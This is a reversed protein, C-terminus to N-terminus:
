KGNGLGQTITTVDFFELTVKNLNGTAVESYSERYVIKEM